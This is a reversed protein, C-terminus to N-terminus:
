LKPLEDWFADHYCSTSLEEWTPYHDDDDDLLEQHVHFCNINLEILAPRKCAFLDRSSPLGLCMNVTLKKLRPMFSDAQIPTQSEKMSSNTIILEKLQAMPALDALNVDRWWWTLSRLYRGFDSSM